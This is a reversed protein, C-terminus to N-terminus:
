DKAAVRKSLRDLAARADATCGAEPAGAALVKLIDQAEPTGVKELVEIARLTRLRESSTLPGDLRSLLNELRQRVELGPKAALAKKLAPEALERLKELEDSAKQRVDFSNSDLDKIYQEIKPSDVASIPKLRAKLYPVSQAPANVLGCIAQYGQRADEGVHFLDEWFQDLQQSTLPKLTEAAQALAVPTTGLFASVLM